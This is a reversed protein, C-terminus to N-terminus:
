SPSEPAAGSATSSAWRPPVTQWFRVCRGPGGRLRARLAAEVPALDAPFTVQHNHPPAEFGCGRGGLGEVLSADDTGVFGTRDVWEYAKILSKTWFVQPTQVTWFRPPPTEVFCGAEDIVKLTDVAPQGCVVGDLAHGRRVGGATSCASEGAPTGAAEAGGADVLADPGADDGAVLAEIAADITEPLILPRAADHVLAIECDAAEAGGADVLADPGADDGAVLAEIAADITEPLILPRAADHVLAIECDAPVAFLGNRTSDQREAGSPAFAIPTLFSFPEVARRMEDSKDPPCVVVIRSVREAADFAELTWTILPKGAVEILLKGGPNGFRTGSGGAVIIACAREMGEAM